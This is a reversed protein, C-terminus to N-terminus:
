GLDNYANTWLVGERTDLAAPIKGAKINFDVANQWMTETYRGNEAFATRLNAVIAKMVPPPTREFFKLLVAETGAANTRIYNSAQAMARVVGRVLAPNKEVFERRAVLADYAINGLEPMEGRALAILVLGFGEAEAMEPAPPSVAFADVQRARLAPLMESTFVMNVDKVPDLGVQRLMYMLVTHLGGGPSATAIRLGRLGSIRERIPLERTLGRAQAVDKRIAVSMTVARNVPAVAIVSKLGRSAATILETAGMAGFDGQGAVVGQFTAPAGRVIQVDADVGEKEFFGAGRAVYISTFSMGQIGQLVITKMSATASRARMWPLGAAGAVLTMVVARRTNM